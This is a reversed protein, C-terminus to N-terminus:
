AAPREEKTLEYKYIFTDTDESYASLLGIDVHFTYSEILDAEGGAVNASNDACKYKVKLEVELGQDMGPMAPLRYTTWIDTGIEAGKRHLANIWPYMGVTGQEFAYATGFKGTANALHTFYPDINDLSYQLNENNNAGQNRYKMYLQQLNWEGIMQVNGTFDNAALEAMMGSFFDEREDKYVQKADGATTDFFGGGNAPSKNAELFALCKDDIRKYIARSKQAVLYNFAQDKGVMNAAHELESLHFEETIGSLPVTILATTGSGTGECQRLTKIGPAIKRFVPLEIAQESSMKAATPNAILGPSNDMFAKAAGYYPIRLNKAGIGVNGSEINLRAQLLKTPDFAM